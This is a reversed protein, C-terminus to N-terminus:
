IRKTVILVRSNDHLTTGIIYYSGGDKLKLKERLINAALPFNRTLVNAQKTISHIEKAVKNSFPIINEIHFSRGHFDPILEESTYLHSHQHLKPINWNHSVTKFLGAKLISSNPEYIYNGLSKAISLTIDKEEGWTSSIEESRKESLINVCSLSISGLYNRQSHILVEKCENQLSIIWIGKINGIEKIALTIDLMPSLKIFMDSTHRFITDKLTCVNPTCDSISVVKSGSSSRRHPDLYIASFTVTDLTNFYEEASTNVATVNNAGLIPFNNSALACLVSNQEIYTAKQFHQSIFYSDVGLGGTLDIVSQLNSLSSAIIKAKYRATLESSCQELSIHPPYIIDSSSAWSPIKHRAIQHASIQELACRLNINPNSIKKLALARTDSNINTLIFEKTDINIM